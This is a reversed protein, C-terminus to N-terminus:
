LPYMRFKKSEKLWSKEDAQLLAELSAPTARPNEIWERVATGGNIVDFALRDHVYEYAFDRFLPYAPYLERIVKLTLAILRFPKFQNPKYGPFDTHVQFGHCLRGQHKYFTPEFYGERILAGKMWDPAKARMAKLIKAFDLEPSGVVELARTTGRGESLTTGELLVTGPFVRASNLTPINPSPNVWPLDTPWGFGPGKTPAYGKMRVIHLDLKLNFHTKFYVAMEGVTLGHRIPIPATGVFSEHGPVLRLGEIVRGAPNPRDLVILGKGHKACEDMMYLLTAIYTYIRCGVDQLDYLVVDFQNMMETTPRRVKGYLSYIPIKHQPHLDDETEVMNYQKDGKIGHQPGFAATLELAKHLVDFSHELKHNVSAPHCVLAVRKSRLQKLVKKNELLVEVGLKM